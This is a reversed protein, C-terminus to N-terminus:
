GEDVLEPCEELRSAVRRALHEAATSGDTGSLSPVPDDLWDTWIPTIQSTNMLKTTVQIGRGGLMVEGDLYLSAGCHKVAAPITRNAAAVRDRLLPGVAAFRSSSVLEAVVTSALLRSLVPLDSSARLCDYQIVVLLQRAAAGRSVNATVASRVGDAHNQPDSGREQRRFGRLSYSNRPLELVVSDHSGDGRAYADLMRRLKSMHMRVLPSQTPDFEAPLGLVRALEPQTAPRGGNSFMAEALHRLLRAPGRSRSFSRHNLVRIVQRQLQDLDAPPNRKPGSNDASSTVPMGVAM